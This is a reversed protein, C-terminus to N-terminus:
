PKGNDAQCDQQHHSGNPPSLFISEVPEKNRQGKGPNSDAPYHLEEQLACVIDPLLDRSIQEVVLYVIDIGMRKGTNCSSGEKGSKHLRDSCFQIATCFLLQHLLPMLQGHGTVFVEAALMLFDHHQPM